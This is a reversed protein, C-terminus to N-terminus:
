SLLTEGRNGNTNIASSSSILMNKVWQVWIAPFGRHIMIDLLFDWSVTVFAKRFDIKLVTSPINNKNRFHIEELAILFTEMLTRDQIFATQNTNILSPM